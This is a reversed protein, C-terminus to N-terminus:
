ALDACATRARFAWTQLHFHERSHLQPLHDLLQRETRTCEDAGARICDPHGIPSWAQNPSPRGRRTRNDARWVDDCLEAILPRTGRM